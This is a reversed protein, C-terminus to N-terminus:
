PERSSCHWLKTGSTIHSWSLDRGLKKFHRDSSVKLMTM